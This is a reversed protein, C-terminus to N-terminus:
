AIFAAALAKEVIGIDSPNNLEWFGRGKSNVELCYIKIGGELFRLQELGELTELKGQKRNVYWQLASARYAYVGVHHYIPTLEAPAFNESCWPIVNKSFYLAQHNDDFVVTTGGIRGEKRDNLLRNYGEGKCQIVPTVVQLEPNNRMASILDDIFDPPTLPADGQLNIIIDATSDLLTNAEYCRETGNKWNESTMVVHGNFSSVENAIQNDDTAVALSDVGQIQCAVEWTRQILTKAIGSYGKLKVLPKGPFRNSAYRAPIIIAVNM